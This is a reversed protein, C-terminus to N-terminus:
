GSTWSPGKTSRGRSSKPPQMHPAGVGHPCLSAQSTSIGLDLIQSAFSSASADTQSQLASRQLACWFGM